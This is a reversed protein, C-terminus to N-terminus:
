GTESLFTRYLALPQSVEADLETIVVRARATRTEGAALDHGLLSMYQPNNKKLHDGADASDYAGGLALCDEPRAMWVAAVTRDPDSQFSVPVKYQRVPSFRPSSGRRGDTCTIAAAPDRPFLLMGSRFVPNMTVAVLEPIDPDIGVGYQLDYREWALYVHPRLASPYFGALGVELTGYDAEARVTATLDICNPERVAYQVTMETRRQETPAWRVSVTSEDATVTRAEQRPDGLRRGATSGGARDIGWVSWVSLITYLPHVFEVGTPKHRLRTVGQHPLESGPSITGLLDATEFQYVSRARITM